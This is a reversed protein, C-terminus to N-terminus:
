VPVFILGIVDNEYDDSTKYERYGQSMAAGVAYKGGNFDALTSLREGKELEFFRPDLELQQGPQFAEDTSSIV